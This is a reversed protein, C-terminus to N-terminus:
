FTSLTLMNPRRTERYLGLLEDKLALVEENHKVQLELVRLRDALGANTAKLNENEAVIIIREAETENSKDKFELFARFEAATTADMFVEYMKLGVTGALSEVTRVGPDNTKRTLIRTVTDESLHLTSTDAMTKASVNLRKKEEVIRDVFM